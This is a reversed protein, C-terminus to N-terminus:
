AIDIDGTVLFTMCNEYFFVDLMSYPFLNSHQLHNQIPICNYLRLKLGLFNYIAAKEDSSVSCHKCQFEWVANRCKRDFLAQSLFGLHGCCFATYFGLRTHKSHPRLKATHHPVVEFDLHKWGGGACVCVCVCWDRRSSCLFLQLLRSWVPLTDTQLFRSSFPSILPAVYARLHQPRPHGEGSAPLLLAQM